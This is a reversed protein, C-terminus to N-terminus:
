SLLPSAAEARGVPRAKRRWALVVACLVGAVSGAIGVAVAPPRYTWVIRHPGPPVRVGRVLGNVRVAAAAHGDVEVRWGRSHADVLVQLAARAADGRREGRAPAWSVFRCPGARGAPADLAAAADAVIAAHGFAVDPALLQAADPRAAHIARGVLYARPLPDRVAYVTLPPAVGIEALAPDAVGAALIAHGVSFVRLTAGGQSALLDWVRHYEADHASEYGPVSAVRFLAGLNAVMTRAGVIARGEYSIASWDTRAVDRYVRPPPRGPQGRAIPLVAEELSRAPVWRLQPLAALALDLAVVASLAVAG